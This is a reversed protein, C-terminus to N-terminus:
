KMSYLEQLQRDYQSKSAVSAKKIQEYRSLWFSVDHGRKKLKKLASLFKSSLCKKEFFNSLKEKSNKILTVGEKKRALFVHASPPAGDNTKHKLSFRKADAAIEALLKDHVEDSCDPVYREVLKNVKAVVEKPPQSAQGEM